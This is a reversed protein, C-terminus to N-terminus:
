DWNNVEEKLEELIDKDHIKNDYTVFLCAKLIIALQTNTMQWYNNTIFDCLANNECAQIFDQKMNMYLIENRTFKIIVNNLM